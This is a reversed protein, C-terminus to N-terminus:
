ARALGLPRRILDLSPRDVPKDRIRLVGPRVGLSLDRLKRRAHLLPAPHVRHKRVLRDSNYGAMGPDKSRPLEAIGFNRDHDGM